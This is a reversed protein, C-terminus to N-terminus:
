ALIKGIKECLLKFGAPDMDERFWLLNLDSAESEDATLDKPSVARAFWFQVVGLGEENKFIRITEVKDLSVFYEEDMLVFNLWM